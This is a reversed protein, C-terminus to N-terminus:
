IDGGLEYKVIIKDLSADIEGLKEDVYEMSALGAISPIHPMDKLDNYSGSLAVDSLVPKNRIYADSGSDECEWDSKVNVKAGDEIGSLKHKELNTFDNASLGKGDVKDVKQGILASVTTAFNPDDGLAKSLESLTDLSEPASGVLEALKSAIVSNIYAIRAEEAAKRDLEAAVRLNENSIRVNEAEARTEEHSIRSAEAVRRDTESNYRVEEAEARASENDARDSEAEARELEALAREAEAEIRLAEVNKREEENEARLRESDDRLVENNVRELEDTIAKEIFRVYEDVNCSVKLSEAVSLIHTLMDIQKKEIVNYSSISAYVSIVIRALTKRAVIEGANFKIFSLEIAVEGAVFSMMLSVPVDIYHIGEDNSPFDGIADDDERWLFNEDLERDPRIVRCTCADFDLSPDYADAGDYFLVRLADSGFDFQKLAIEPKLTETDSVNLKVEHYKM